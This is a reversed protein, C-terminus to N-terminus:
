DLLWFPEWLLPVKKRYNYQYHRLISAHRAQMVADHESQGKSAYAELVIDWLEEREAGLIEEAYVSAKGVGRCGPYGDTPDGVITQWMHFRDADLENISLVGLEHRAPSYIQAPITRMDKDESVIIKEGEVLTPHTALIGMVDDAELWPRRYTKYEDALYAKATGLLVPKTSGSRNAKYTDDLEKRFNKSDSLCVIVSSAKLTDCYEEITDDLIKKMEEPETSICEVGDFDYRDQSVAAAKFALIDADLLLTVSERAM